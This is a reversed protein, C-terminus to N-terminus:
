IVKKITKNKLPSMLAPPSQWISFPKSQSVTATRLLVLPTNSTPKPNHILRIFGASATSIREATRAWLTPLPLASIAGITPISYKKNM